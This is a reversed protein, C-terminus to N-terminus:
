VVNKPNASDKELVQYAVGKEYPLAFENEYRTRFNKFEPFAKFGAEAWDDFAKKVEVLSKAETNNGYALARGIDSGIQNRVRLYSTFGLTPDDSALLDKVVSPIYKDTFDGKVFRAELGARLDSIDATARINNLGLDDALRTMEESKADKASQLAYRIKRGEEARSAKPLEQALGYQGKQIDSSENKLLNLEDDYHKQLGSIVAVPAADDGGLGEAFQRISEKNGAAREINQRSLDGTSTAQVRKQGVILVNDLTSEAPTFKPPEIGADKFAQIIEQTRQLDGRKLSEQYAKDLQEGLIGRVQGEPNKFRSVAFDVAPQAKEALWKAGNITPSYKSLLSWGAKAAPAVVAGPMGGALDGLGTRVGLTEEEAQGLAGSGAAAAVEGALVKKPAEALGQVGDRILQQTTAQTKAFPKAISGRVVEGAENLVPTSDDVAKAWQQNILRKAQEGVYTGGRTGAGRQLPAVLDVLLM